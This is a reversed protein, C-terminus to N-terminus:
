TEVSNGCAQKKLLNSKSIKNTNPIQILITAEDKKEKLLRQNLLIYLFFAGLITIFIFSAIITKNLSSDVKIEFRSDNGTPKIIIGNNKNQVVSGLQYSGLLQVENEQPFVSITNFLYNNMSFKIIQIRQQKDVPDIRIRDFEKFPAINFSYSTQDPQIMLSTSKDEKYLANDKRWYVQFKGPKESLISLSVQTPGGAEVALYLNFSLFLFVAFLCGIIESIQSSFGLKLMKKYIKRVKM